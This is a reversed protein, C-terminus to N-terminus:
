GRRSRKRGGGSFMLNCDFCMWNNCDVDMEKYFVGNRCVYAMGVGVIEQHIMKGCRRGNVIGMCTVTGPGKRLNNHYSPRKRWEDRVENLQMSGQACDSCVITNVASTFNETRLNNGAEDHSKKDQGNNNKKTGDPNAKRVRKRGGSSIDMSPDEKSEDSEDSKEIDETEFGGREAVNGSVDGMALTEFNCWDANAMTGSLNWAERM